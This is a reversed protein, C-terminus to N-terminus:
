SSRGGWFWSFFSPSSAAEPEDETFHDEIFRDLNYSNSSPPEGQVPQGIDYNMANDLIQQDLLASSRQRDSGSEADSDAEAQEATELASLRAELSENTARLAQHRAELSENAARLAQIDDHLSSLLELLRANQEQLAM